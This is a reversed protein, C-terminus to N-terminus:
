GRTVRCNRKETVQSQIDDMREITVTSVQLKPYIDQTKV